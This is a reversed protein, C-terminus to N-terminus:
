NLDFSNVIIGEENLKSIVCLNAPIRENTLPNTLNTNLLGESQLTYVRTCKETIRKNLLEERYFSNNTIYIDAALEIERKIDDLRKEKSKNGIEDIGFITSGTVVVLLAIVVLLEILTFGKKNKM